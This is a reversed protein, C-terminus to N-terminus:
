KKAQKKAEKKRINSQVGMMFSELELIDEGKQM